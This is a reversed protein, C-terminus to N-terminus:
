RGESRTAERSTKGGMERDRGFQKRGPTIGATKLQKYTIKVGAKSEAGERSAKNQQEKRETYTVPEVTYASKSVRCSGSACVNPKCWMGLYGGPAIV